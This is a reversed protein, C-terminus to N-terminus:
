GSGNCIHNPSSSISIKASIVKLRNLQERMKEALKVLTEEELKLMRLEAIKAAALSKEAKKDSAM